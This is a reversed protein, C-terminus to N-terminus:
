CFRTGFQDLELLVEMQPCIASTTDDSKLMLLCNCLGYLSSVQEWLQYMHRINDNAACMLLRPLMHVFDSALASSPSLTKNVPLSAAPSAEDASRTQM